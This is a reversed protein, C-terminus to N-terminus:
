HPYAFAAEFDGDVALYWRPLSHHTLDTRAAVLSRMDKDLQGIFQADTEVTFRFGFWPEDIEAPTEHDQPLLLVKAMM